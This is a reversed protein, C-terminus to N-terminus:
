LPVARDGHWVTLPTLGAPSWEGAVTVPHGGSVALLPWLSDQGLLPVAAGSLDALYWRGGAEAPTGSEAGTILVGQTSGQEPSIGIGLFATRATDDGPARESITVEVPAGAFSQTHARALRHITHGEPM